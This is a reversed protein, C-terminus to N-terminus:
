DTVIHTSKPHSSCWVYIYERHSFLSLPGHGFVAFCDILFWWGYNQWNDSALMGDLLTIVHIYTNSKGRSNSFKGSTDQCDFM